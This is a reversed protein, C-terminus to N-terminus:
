MGNQERWSIILSKLTKNPILSTHELMENTVPSRATSHFKSLWCEIASKEYSFGDACIHPDEMLQMTIPCEFDVPIDMPLTMDKSDILLERSTQSTNDADSSPTHTLISSTSTTLLFLPPALPASPESPESPACRASLALNNDTKVHKEIGAPKSSNSLEASDGKKDDVELHKEIGSPQWFYNMETSEGEEGLVKTCVSLDPIMPPFLHETGYLVSLDFPSRGGSNKVSVDAGKEVLISIIQPMNLNVAVHLPARGYIDQLNIDAGHNILCVCSEVRGYQCSRHLASRGMNDKTNVAAGKSLLSVCTQACNYRSNRWTEGMSAMHLPTSGSNNRSHVNAGMEILAMAADTQGRFSNGLM